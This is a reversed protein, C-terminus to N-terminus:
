SVPVLPRSSFKTRDKSPRHSPPPGGGGRHHQTTSLLGLSPPPPAPTGHFAVYAFLIDTAVEPHIYADAKQPPCAGSTSRPTPQGGIPDPTFLPPTSFSRSAPLRRPQQPAPPSLTLGFYPSGLSPAPLDVLRTSGLWGGLAVPNCGSSPVCSRSPPPTLVYESGYGLSGRAFHAEYHLAGPRNLRWFRDGEEQPSGRDGSPLRRPSNVRVDPRGKLGEYVSDRPQRQQPFLKPLPSAGKPSSVHLWHLLLSCSSLTKCVSGSKAHPQM